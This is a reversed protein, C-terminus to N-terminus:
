LEEREIGKYKTCTYKFERTFLTATDLDFLTMSGVKTFYINGTTSLFYKGMHTAVLLDGNPVYQVQIVKETIYHGNYNYALM